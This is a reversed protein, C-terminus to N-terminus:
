WSRSKLISYYFFLVIALAGWNGVAIEGTQYAQAICAVNIAALLFYFLHIM